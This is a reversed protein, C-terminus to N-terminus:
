LLVILLKEMLSLIVTLDQQELNLLLLRLEMMYSGVM